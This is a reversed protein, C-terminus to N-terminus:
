IFLTQLKMKGDRADVKAVAGSVMPMMPPLHGLDANLLIPVGLGGLM